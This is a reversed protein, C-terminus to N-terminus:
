RKELQKCTEVLTSAFENANVPPNTFDFEPMVEKLIPDTEPVLDFTEINELTQIGNDTDILITGDKDIVENM